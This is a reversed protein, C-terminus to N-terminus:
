YAVVPPRPISIILRTPHKVVGCRLCAYSAEKVEHRTTCQCGNCYRNEHSFSPREHRCSAM